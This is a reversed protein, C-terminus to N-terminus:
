LKDVSCSMSENENTTDSQRRKVIHKAEYVYLFAGIDVEVLNQPTPRKFHEATNDQHQVHVIM